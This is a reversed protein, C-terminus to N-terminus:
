SRGHKILDDTYTLVKLQHWACLGTFGIATLWARNPESAFVGYWIATAYAGMLVVGAQHVLPLMRGSVLAAVMAVATVSFFLVWYPGNKDITNVISVGGPTPPLAAITIGTQPWGYGIALLAHIAALVATSAKSSRPSDARRAWWKTV